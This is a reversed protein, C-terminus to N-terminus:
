DSRRTAEGLSEGTVIESGAQRSFDLARPTGAAPIFFRRFSALRGLTRVSLAKRIRGIAYDTRHDSMRTPTPARILPVVHMQPTRRQGSKNDLGFCLNLAEFQVIQALFRSTTANDPIM